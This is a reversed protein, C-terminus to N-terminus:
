NVPEAIEADGRRRPGFRDICRKRIESRGADLVPDDM